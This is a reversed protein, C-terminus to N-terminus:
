PKRGAKSDVKAKYEHHEETEKHGRKKMESRMGAKEYENHVANHTKICQPKGAASTDENKRRRCGQATKEKRRQIHPMRASLAGSDPGM